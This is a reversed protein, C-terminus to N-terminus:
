NRLEEIIAADIWYIDFGSGTNRGFFLYKGDPSVKAFREAFKTNVKPGMNKPDGWSGDKKRFVIYLDIFGPEGDTPRDSEFILYSEDPAIFPGDEYGPTNIPSPLRTIKGNRDTHFINWDPTGQPGIIFYRNSTKSMSSAYVDRPFLVTDLVKAESWANGKRVVFWLTQKDSSSTDFKRNTSFYLTDGKASFNPYVENMTTDSFSPVHPASWKNNVFNMELLCTQYSPMKMITWVVTKGDPSFAPASHEVAATTLVGPAFLRATNGPSKQDLYNISVSNQANAYITILFLSLLKGLRFMYSSIHKVPPTALSM